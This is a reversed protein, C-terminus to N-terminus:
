PKGYFYADRPVLGGVDLCTVAERTANLRGEEGERTGSSDCGVLESRKKRGEPASVGGGEGLIGRTYIYGGGGTKQIFEEIYNGIKNSHLHNTVLGWGRGDAYAEM